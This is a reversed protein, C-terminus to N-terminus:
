ILYKTENVFEIDDNGVNFSLNVSSSKKIHGTKQKSGIIMAQTKIVNLSLKNGRLWENLSAHEANVIVNLDELNDSAYCITTDDAYM